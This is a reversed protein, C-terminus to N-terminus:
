TVLPPEPTSEYPLTLDFDVSSQNEYHKTRDISTPFPPPTPSPHPPLPKKPRPPIVAVQQNLSKRSQKDGNKLNQDHFRLNKFALAKVTPAKQKNIEDSFREIGGNDKVFSEVFAATKKNIPVNLELLLQKMKESSEDESALHIKFRLL